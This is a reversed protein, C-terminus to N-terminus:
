VKTATYKEMEGDPYNVYIYMRELYETIGISAESQMINGEANKLRREIHDITYNTDGVIRYTLTYYESVVTLYIIDFTFALDKSQEQVRAVKFESILGSNYNLQGM